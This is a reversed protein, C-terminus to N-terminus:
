YKSHMMQAIVTDALGDRACFEVRDISGNGDDDFVPWVVGLTQRISEARALDHAVNFTKVLARLVEEKQLTGNGDEDWYDYWGQKDKTIDPLYGAGGDHILRRSSTQRYHRRVVSAIQIVERPEITGSGDRDWKRWHQNFASRPDDFEADIRRYDLPLQAKLAEVVEKKSLRGNGDWDVVRFWGQPDSTVDPVRIVESIPMRTLPCARNGSRLHMQAADLNYFHQSVRRKQDDVFVGVAASHLPEFCIPCEAHEAAVGGEGTAYQQMFGQQSLGDGSTCQGPSTHVAFARQQHSIAIPEVYPVATATPMQSQKRGFM